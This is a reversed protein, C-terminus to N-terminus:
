AQMRQWKDEITETDGNREETVDSPVICDAGRCCPRKEWRTAAESVSKKPFQDTYKLKRQNAPIKQIARYSKAGKQSRFDGSEAQWM